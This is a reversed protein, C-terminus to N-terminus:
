GRLLTLDYRYRANFVDTALRSVEASEWRCELALASLDEVSWWMGAQARPNDLELSAINPNDALFQQARDRDPVNGLMLRDVSTFRAHVERLMAALQDGDLFMMSGYCLAKTFREPRQETRVYEVVDGVLFVYDPPDAFNEQAVEIMYESLDVGLVARCDGFLRSSLAGNGCALDLLLDDRTLRLAGRIGEVIRQVDAESIRRGNITRRVQGWFDDRALSKPYENYDSKPLSEM